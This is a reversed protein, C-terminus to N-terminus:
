KSRAGHGAPTSPPAITENYMVMEKYKLEEDRVRISEEACSILAQFFEFFSLEIDLNMIKNQECLQPFIRSFIKIIAKSSLNGFNFLKLNEIDEPLEFIDPLENDDVVFSLEDGFIYVNRGLPLYIDPVEVLDPQLHHLFHPSRRVACLFTRVTHPEGLSRYLDYTARLPVFQGFGNVLHGRQRSTGPIVDNDMFNRLACAIITDPKAGPLVRKAYLRSAVSIVSHLFQWFYIKEFPNHASRALWEPNQHYIRDIEILTLGREHVNCDYYLQWLYLRILIPTFGVEKSNCITAYKYYINLLETEYCKLCNRLSTEEFMILTVLKEKRIAEESSTEQNVGIKLLEKNIINNNEMYEMIINKRIEDRKDLNKFAQDVHYSLGVNNDCIDFKHPEHSISLDRKTQQLYRAETELAPAINDDIFLNKDQIILGNNTVFKGVGHKKNKNFEGKYHSGLGLGLHLTGYGHRQGKEWTGCFSNISPVSMTNNYSTEWIYIGYGSMVGNHWEGRYFDHNPWIMLGKGQRINRDWDGKYGSSEDYERSGYGFRENHIWQGDYSNKFNHSYYIVGDGHKTGCHWGGVYSRQTRSDVYIGNGHRLNGVFEGEYWTDDKWHLVGKGNIENDKFQGLYTTGDSWVFRGEGHMCKSSISGEYFNGNRFKIIAKEDPIAWWVTQISDMGFEIRSRSRKSKSGKTTAKKKKGGMFTTDSTTRTAFDFRSSDEGKTPITEWSEVISELMADFMMTIIDKRISGKPRTSISASSDSNLPVTSQGRVASWADFEGELGTRKHTVLSSERRTVTRQSDVYFM